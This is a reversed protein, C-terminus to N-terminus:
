EQSPLKFSLAMESICSSDPAAAPNSLFQLAMSAPCPDYFTPSHGSGPITYVHSNSLTEAADHSWAPPTLSDLEGALILVPVDSSVPARTLPAISEVGWVGCNRILAKPGWSMNALSDEFNPFRGALVIDEETLTNFESCMASFGLGHAFNLPPMMAWPITELVAYDEQTLRYILAPLSPIMPPQAVAMFLAEALRDGNFVVNLKGGTRPDEASVTVPEENLKGIVADFNAELDPYSSSCGPDDACKEFLLHLARSGNAPNEAQLTQRGLPATSDIVVSTVREPYARLVHQAVITGASTGYICFQDYNLATMVMAMDAAIEVFNFASLDIGEAQLRDRCSRISELQLVLTEEASLNQQLRDFSATVIEECLLPPESLPLGRNEILVIDRLARLPAGVGSAIEPGINGIASTGPGPPAIVLPDAAIKGGTGPFVAVALRLTKGGPDDHSEPVRVYGCRVSHQENEEKEFSIPCPAEEFLGVQLSVSELQTLESCSLVLFFALLPAVKRLLM